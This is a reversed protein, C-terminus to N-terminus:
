GRDPGDPVLPVFRVGGHDTRTVAGAADRRVVVLRQGDDRGVPVVLRGGPALQEVLAPPVDEAAAAAVNIADFPAVDPLGRSGDGIVLRVREVGAARLSAAARLSLEPHREVSWVEAGLACLLAAHWGTGTGVDLVRDGPRVDLLACMVAVVLPQSITQGAAVPLPRNEYAASRHEAPM